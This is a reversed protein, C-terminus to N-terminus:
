KSIENKQLKKHEYMRRDALKFVDAYRMEKEEKYIAIGFAIMVPIVEDDNYVNLCKVGEHFTEILLDRSDYDSNELIVVFEDGGIRFVPSHSFVSCIFRSATVLLSDGLAHGYHDNVTKLGSIDMVAVAFRAKGSVIKEDIDFLTTRYAAANKVGTLSDTFAALSTDHNRKSQVTMYLYAIDIAVVPWPSLVSVFAAAAAGATGAIIFVLIHKVLDRKKRNGKIYIHTVSILSFGMYFFPAVWLLRLWELEVYCIDADIVFLFPIFANVIMMVATALTPLAILVDGVYGFKVGAVKLCYKAIVLPLICMLLYYLGVVAAHLAKPHSLNGNEILFKLMDLLLMAGTLLIILNFVPKKFFSTDNKQQLYFVVACVSLSIIILEAYVLANM